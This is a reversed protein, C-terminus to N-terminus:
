GSVTNNTIINVHSIQGGDIHGDIKPKSCGIKAKNPRDCIM